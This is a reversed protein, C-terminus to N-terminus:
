ATGPGRKRRTASSEPHSLILMQHDESDIMHFYSPLEQIIGTTKELEQAGHKLATRKTRLNEMLTSFSEIKSAGSEDKWMVMRTGMHTLRGETCSLNIQFHLIETSIEDLLAQLKEKHRAMKRQLRSFDHHHQTIDSVSPLTFVSTASSVESSTRDKTVREATPEEGELKNVSDSLTMDEVKLATELMALNNRIQPLERLLNNLFLMLDGFRMKQSVTQPTNDKTHDELKQNLHQLEEQLHRLERGLFQDEAANSRLNGLWKQLKEFEHQQSQTVVSFLDFLKEELSCSLKREEDHITNLYNIQDELSRINWVQGTEGKRAENSHESAVDLKMPDTNTDSSPPAANHSAPSISYTNDETSPVNPLDDESGPSHVPLRDPHDHRMISSQLREEPQNEPNDYTGLGSVSHSHVRDNDDKPLQSM